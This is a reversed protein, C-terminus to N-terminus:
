KCESVTIVMTFCNLDYQRHTCHRKFIMIVFIKEEKSKVLDTDLVSEIDSVFGM